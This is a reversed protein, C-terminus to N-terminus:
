KLLEKEMKKLRDHAMSAEQQASLTASQAGELQATLEAVEDALQV